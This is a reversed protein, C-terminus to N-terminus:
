LWLTHSVSARSGESLSWSVLLNNFIQLLATPNSILLQDQMMVAHMMLDPHLYSLLVLIYARRM